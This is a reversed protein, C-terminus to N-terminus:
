SRARDAPPNLPPLSAEGPARQSLLWRKRARAVARRLDRRPWDARAAGYLDAALADLLSLFKDDGYTAALSRVRADPVLRAAWRHLDAQIDGAASSHLSRRLQAYAYAESARRRAAAARLARGLRPVAFWLLLGALVLGLVVISAYRRGPADQPATEGTTAPPGAVTVTFGPAVAREIRGAQTNWYDLAIGPVEFDGGATFVLTVEESRRAVAGDEVDPESAYATAGAYDLVPVLPPLFIAPMGELEASYRLVVADGAALGELDADAELTLQLSRGALYPDLGAAGQPVVGRLAIEPVEVEATLPPAGPNAYTVTMVEGSIRYRAGLLPWVRYRRVIGSWTENGVRESTPYSSDPPLRTIANALEFSPYVPPRTFWTPVLVTVQLEAAEGVEVAQPSVSVRVIPEPAGWAPGALLLLCVLLRRTM